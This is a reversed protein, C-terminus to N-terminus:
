ANTEVWGDMKVFTLLMRDGADEAKVAYGWRMAILDMQPVLEHNVFLSWEIPQNRLESDLAAATWGAVFAEDDYPGHESACVVFPMVLAFHEEPEEPM